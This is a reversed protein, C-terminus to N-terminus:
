AISHGSRFWHHVCSNGCRETDSSSDSSESPLFLLSHTCPHRVRFAADFKANPDWVKSRCSGAMDTIGPGQRGCTRGTVNRSYLREGYRLYDCHCPNCNWGRWLKGPCEFVDCCVTRCKWWSQLFTHRHDRAAIALYLASILIVSLLISRRFDRQPNEFEEAVNSVNEYGLYSWFVLAATTGIALLGNPAFPIFNSAKMSGFSFVVATLLLVIIAVIVALQIRNSFVIGRYNIVFALCLIVEAIVFM